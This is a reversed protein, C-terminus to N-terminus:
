RPGGCQWCTACRWRYAAFHPLRRVRHFRILHWIM